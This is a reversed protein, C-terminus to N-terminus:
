ASKPPPVAPDLSVTRPPPPMAADLTVATLHVPALVPPSVLFVSTCWVPCGQCTTCSAPDMPGAPRGDCVPEPSQPAACCVVAMRPDCVVPVECSPEAPRPVAPVATLQFLVGALTAVRFCKRSWVLGRPMSGTGPVGGGM